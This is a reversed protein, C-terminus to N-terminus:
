RLGLPSVPRAITTPRLLLLPPSQAVLNATRRPWLPNSKRHYCLLGQMVTEGSRGHREHPLTGLGALYRQLPRSAGPCREKSGGCTRCTQRRGRVPGTRSGESSRGGRWQGGGSSSKGGSRYALQDRRHQFPVARELFQSSLLQPNPHCVTPFPLSAYPKLPDTRSGAVFAINTRQRLGCAPRSQWSTSGSGPFHLSGSNGHAPSAAFVSKQCYIALRNRLIICPQM